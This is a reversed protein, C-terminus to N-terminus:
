TTVTSFLKLGEHNGEAGSSLILSLERFWTEPAYTGEQWYNVNFGHIKGERYAPSNKIIPYMSSLHLISPRVMTFVIVNAEQMRSAVWEHTSQVSGPTNADPTIVEGGLRRISQAVWSRGGTVFVYGQFEMFWLVREGKTSSSRTTNEMDQSVKQVIERAQRELNFFHGIFEIWKIRETIDPEYWADEVANPSHTKVLLNYLYPDDHPFLFTFVVEPKLARLEQLSQIDSLRGSSLREVLEPLVLHAEAANLIGKFNDLVPEAENHLRLAFALEIPSCAVARHIPVRVALDIKSADPKSAGSYLLLRRGTADTLIKAQPSLLEVGYNM